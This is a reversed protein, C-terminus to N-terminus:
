LITICEVYVNIADYNQTVGNPLNQFGNVRFGIVNRFLHLLDKVKYARVALKKLTKEPPLM